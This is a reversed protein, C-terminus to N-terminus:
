YPSDQPEEEDTPSVPEEQAHIGEDVKEYLDLFSQRTIDDFRNTCLGIAKMKDGFISYARIIHVLRRTAIMEDIGGEYFTVRTINAWDVLKTAFNEDVKGVARMHNLIMKIEMSKSAYPQEFTVPFRDLFAENHINTGIYRGDESGKGKTNATAIINFGNKPYVYTNIKKIFLPKGELVSQLSMIKSSALDYEDLLLVAGRKMATPVPGDQWVTKGDILVYHGLLDDEDTEVTFNVRVCEKTLRACAQEVQFTKGNGSHGTIVMPYFMNSKLVAHIDRFNGWAVFEESKQPVLNDGAVDLVDATAKVTEISSVPATVAVEEISASTIAATNSFNWRGRGSKFTDVVTWNSPTIELETCVEQVERSTVTREEFKTSMIKLFESNELKRKSM